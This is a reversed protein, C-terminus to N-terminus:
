FQFTFKNVFSYHFKVLVQWPMRLTFVCCICIYMQSKAVARDFSMYKEKMTSLSLIQYLFSYYYRCCTVLLHVKIYTGTGISIFTMKKRKTVCILNYQFYFNSMIHNFIYVNLPCQSPRLILFCCLVSNLTRCNEADSKMSSMEKKWVKRLLFFSLFLFSIFNIWLIQPYIGM